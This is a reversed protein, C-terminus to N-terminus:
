FFQALAQDKEIARWAIQILISRVQVNGQHTIHGRHITEGSSHESPTLGTYSFLQRENKFQSM